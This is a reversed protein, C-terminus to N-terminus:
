LVSCYLVTFYLWYLVTCNLVTCYLLTCYLVTCYLVTCYLVTCYLVTKYSYNFKKSKNFLQKTFLVTDLIFNEWKLYKKPRFTGVVLKIVRAIDAAVIATLKNMSRKMPGLSLVLHLYVYIQSTQRNTHKYGIFSLVASGIPGLNKTLCWTVM